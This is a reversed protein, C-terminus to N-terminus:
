LAIQCNDLIKIIKLKDKIDNFSKLLKILVPIESKRKPIAKFLCNNQIFDAIVLIESYLSRKNPKLFSASM